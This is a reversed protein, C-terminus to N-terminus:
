ATRRYIFFYISLPWWLVTFIPYVAWIVNPSTLVNVNIFFITVLFSGLVSYLMPRRAFTVSLPWWLIVFTPFIFWPFGPEFFLNLGIYYMILAISALVAFTPNGAQRGAFSILPWYLLPLWAYLIWLYEPTQVLNITLLVIILLLSAILSYWKYGNQLKFLVNLPWFLIFIAPYIAWIEGPTTLWNVIFLFVITFLSAFMSFPVYGKKM